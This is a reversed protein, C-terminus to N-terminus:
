QLLVVVVVPCTNDTVGRLSLAAVEELSTNVVLHLIDLLSVVQLSKLGVVLVVVDQLLDLSMMLVFVLWTGGAAELGTQGTVSRWYSRKRGYCEKRGL